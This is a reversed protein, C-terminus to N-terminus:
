FDDDEDDDVPAPKAKRAPAVSKKPPTKRRRPPAPEDDDEDDEVPASKKKAPAKKPPAEEEDDIDDLDDDEVKSKTKSKSKAPPEDYLDDDDDIDVAPKSKAKTRAPPEDDEDEDDDEVVPAPKKKAPVKKPPEDDEDDDYYGDDDEDDEVPAPKKKGAKAKPRDDDDGDDYFSANSKHKKGKTQAGDEDDEDHEVAKSALSKAERRAEEVSELPAKDEIDWLLYNMEEETLPSRQGLNANYKDTGSAEPNYQIFVDCGYKEHSLDYAKSNGDKSKVRNLDSLRNLKTILSVPLRVVRVPTWSKSNKDKFGSEAEDETPKAKRSPEDEQLDRIIANVYFERSYDASELECYPCGKTTDRTNTDPDYALCYKPIRTTKGRKTLIEIWHVGYGSIPGVFRVSVWKEKPLTLVEWTDDIRSRDGTSVDTFSTSRKFKALM